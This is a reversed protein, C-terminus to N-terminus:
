RIRFVISESIALESISPPCDGNAGQAFKTEGLFAPLTIQEYGHNRIVLLTDSGPVTKALNVGGWSESMKM